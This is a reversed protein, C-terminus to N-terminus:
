VRVWKDDYGGMDIFGDMFYENNMYTLKRFGKGTYMLHENFNVQVLNLTLKNFGINIPQTKGVTIHAYLKNGRYTRYCMVKAKEIMNLLNELEDDNLTIELTCKQYHTEDGYPEPTDNGAFMLYTYNNVYGYSAKVFNLTMSNAMNEVDFLHYDEVTMRIYAIDSEVYAGAKNYLRCKYALETNPKPTYDILSDVTNYNNGIEIWDGLGEKRLVVVEKFDDPQMDTMFEVLVSDTSQKLTLLPKPLDPFLTSFEHGTISSWIGYRNKVSLEVMYHKNNELTPLQHQQTKVNYEENELINANSLDKVKIRYAVQDTAEWMLIPRSLNYVDQVGIFSPKSPAGYGFFTSTKTRTRTTKYYTTLTISNEGKIFTGSPCLYSRDSTGQIVRSGISLEWRDVYDSTVFSILVQQEININLDNPELSYILPEDHILTFSKTMESTVEQGTSTLVIAILTIQVEGKGLVGAPITLGDYTKNCSVRYKVAGTVNPVVTIPYDVNNQDLTFDTIVPAISTLGSVRLTVYDSTASYGNVNKKTRVRIDIGNTSQMTNAPIIYSPTNTTVAHIKIGDQWIEYDWTCNATDTMDWATNIPEQICKQTGVVRLNTPREVTLAQFANLNLSVVQSYYIDELFTLKSKINVQVKDSTANITGPPIEIYKNSTEKSIVVAENVVVEYSVANSSLLAFDVYISEYIKNGRQKLNTPVEATIQYTITVTPDISWDTYGGGALTPGFYALSDSAVLGIKDVVKLPLGAFVEDFDRNPWVNGRNSLQEYGGILNGNSSIGFSIAVTSWYHTLGDDPWRDCTIGTVHLGGVKGEITNGQKFQSLNLNMTTSQTQATQNKVWPSTTIQKTAM